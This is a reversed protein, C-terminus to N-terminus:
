RDTLCGSGENMNWGCATCTAGTVLWADWPEMKGECAPCPPCVEGPQLNKFGSQYKADLDSCSAEREEKREAGLPVHADANAPILMRFAARTIGRKKMESVVRLFSELDHCGHDESCGHGQRISEADDRFELCLVTDDSWIRRVLGDVPRSVRTKRTTM